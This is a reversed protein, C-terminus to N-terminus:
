LLQSYRSKIKNSTQLFGAAHSSFFTTLKMDNLQLEKEGSVKHDGMCIDAGIIGYKYEQEINMLKKAAKSMLIRDCWAPCRFSCFFDIISIFSYYFSTAKLDVITHRTIAYRTSMYNRPLEPNEEYPYSPPFTIPFEWLIDRIPDLERDFQRFWDQRFIENDAHTFEKKGLTLKISGEADKFQVKTHDNKLHPIRQETLDM